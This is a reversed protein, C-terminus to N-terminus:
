LEEAMLWAYTWPSWSIFSVPLSTVHSSSYCVCTNTLLSIDLEVGPLDIEYVSTHFWVMVWGLGCWGVQEGLEVGAELGGQQANLWQGVKQGNTVALASWETSNGWFCWCVSTNVAECYVTLTPICVAWGPRCHCSFKRDELILLPGLM